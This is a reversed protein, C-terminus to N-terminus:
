ERLAADHDGIRVIPGALGAPDAIREGTHLHPQPLLVFDLELAALDKGAVPAIRPRGGLDHLLDKSGGADFPLLKRQSGGAAPHVAPQARAVHALDPGVATQRDTATELFEDDRAAVVDVRAL